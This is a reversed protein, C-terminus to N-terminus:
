GRMSLVFEGLAEGIERPSDDQLHHLGKITVERQNPLSRCFERVRGSITGGPDGNIFLKPLSSSAALWKANEEAIAVVDEPMGEIPLERQSVLTPMLRCGSALDLETAENRIHIRTRPEM